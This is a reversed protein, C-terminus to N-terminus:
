FIETLNTPLPSADAEYTVSISLVMGASAEGKRPNFHVEDVLRFATKSGCSKKFVWHLSFAAALKIM